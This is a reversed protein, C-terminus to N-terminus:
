QKPIMVAVEDSDLLREADPKGAAAVPNRDRAVGAPDFGRLGSQL